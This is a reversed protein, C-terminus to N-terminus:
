VLVEDFYDQGKFTAIFGDKIELVIDYKNTIGDFYKHSISIVTADLSLLTSEIQRGFEENLASTAEDVFIIEAKKVLARAISIRQREGGSLNKGNESIMTYIGEDLSAVFDELGAKKCADLVEDDSYDKYLCINEKLTTEFLFVDQYVYSVKENFSSMSVSKLDVGDVDISGDYDDIVHSILKFLTSKGSGSPGKVIHKKGKEFSFNISKFVKNNEYSFSVDNINILSNYEFPNKSGNSEVVEEPVTIKEFIASSAKLKNVLPFLNVLSFIINASLQISIIMVGYSLGNQLQYIMYIVLGIVVFNGIAFNSYLQFSTFINFKFKKHELSKIAKKNKELFSDEINNLKLIELGNFVNSVDVTFKENATSVDKQYRVTRKEYFKSIFFVLISVIFIILAIKWNIVLLIILAALYMFFRFIVNILSLFFDAEFTNVDNILNSVYVDRSRKNFQKYGMNVIKDFAKIRLTLVVDRMYSIRMLRSSIFLVAGLITAGLAAFGAFKLEDMSQNGVAEFVLALVGIQLLDTLVPIFCAIIYLIFKGKKELLLEKM